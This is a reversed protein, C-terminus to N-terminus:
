IAVRKISHVSSLGLQAKFHPITREDAYSVFLALITLLISTEIQLVPGEIATECPRTNGLKFKETCGKHERHRQPPYEKVYDVVSVCLVVLIACLFGTSLVSSGPRRQEVFWLKACM